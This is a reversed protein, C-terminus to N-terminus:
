QARHSFPESEVRQDTRADKPAEIVDVWNRDFCVKAASEAKYCPQFDGESVMEPPVEYEAILRGSLHQWSLKPSATGLRWVLIPSDEIVNDSGILPPDGRVISIAMVDVASRARHYRYSVAHSNHDANSFISTVEFTDRPDPTPNAQHVAIASILACVSITAIFPWPLPWSRVDAATM